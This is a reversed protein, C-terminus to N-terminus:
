RIAGLIDRIADRNEQLHSEYAVIEPPRSDPLMPRLDSKETDPVRVQVGSFFVLSRGWGHSNRAGWDFVYADGEIGKCWWSYAAVLAARELETLGRYYVDGYFGAGAALVQHEYIMQMSDPDAEVEEGARAKALRVTKATDIEAAEDAPLLARVRPEGTVEKRTSMQDEVWIGFPMKARPDGRVDDPMRWLNEACILDLDSVELKGAEIHNGASFGLLALGPMLRCLERATHLDV